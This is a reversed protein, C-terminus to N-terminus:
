LALTTHLLGLTKEFYSLTIINVFRVLSYTANYIATTPHAGSALKKFSTYAGVKRRLAFLALDLVLMPALKEQLRLFGNLFQGRTESKDTDGPNGSPKNEFWFDL